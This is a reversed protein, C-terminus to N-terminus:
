INTENPDKLTFHKSMFDGGVGGRHEVPIGSDPCLSFMTRSTHMPQIQSFGAKTRLHMRGLVVSGAALTVNKPWDPRQFALEFLLKM